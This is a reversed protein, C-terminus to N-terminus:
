LYKDEFYCFIILVSKTSLSIRWVLVKSVLNLRKKTPIGLISTIKLQFINNTQLSPLKTFSMLTKKWNQNPKKKVTYIIVKWSWSSTQMRYFQLKWPGLPKLLAEPRTVRECFLLIVSWNLDSAAESTLYDLEGIFAPGDVAPQKPCTRSPKSYSWSYMCVDERSLRHQYKDMRM